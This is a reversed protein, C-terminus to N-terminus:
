PGGDDLHNFDEITLEKLKKRNRLYVVIVAILFLVGSLAFIWEEVKLLVLWRYKKKIYENWRIEFDLLDFGFTKVFAGPFSRQQRVNNLLEVLREVGYASVIFEVASQAEIYALRAKPANWRFMTDIAALDIIKKNVIAQALVIKKEFSLGNESFYDAMGENLWAPIYRGKLHDYILVHMLEHLLITPSKKIQEADALKLVIMRQEPLAVAQSWEPVRGKLFEMFQADSKTILVSVQTQVSEQFLQEIKKLPEDINKILRETLLRDGPEYYFVLRGYQLKELSKALTLSCIQGVIFIGFIIIKNAKAM